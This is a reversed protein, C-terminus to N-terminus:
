CADSCKRQSQPKPHKTSEPADRKVEFGTENADLFLSREVFWKPEVRRDFLNKQLFSWTRPNPQTPSTVSTGLNVDRKRSVFLGMSREGLELLPQMLHTGLHLSAVKQSFLLLALFRGSSAFCDQIPILIGNRAVGEREL